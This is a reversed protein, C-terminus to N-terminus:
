LDVHDRREPYASLRFELTRAVSYQFVVHCDVTTWIDGYADMRVSRKAHLKIM